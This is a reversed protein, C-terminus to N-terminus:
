PRTAVGMFAPAFLRAQVVPPDGAQRWEGLGHDQITQLVGMMDPNPHPVPEDPHEDRWQQNVAPVVNFWGESDVSEQERALLEQLPAERGGLGPHAGLKAALDEHSVGQRTAEGLVGRYGGEPEPPMAAPQPEMAQPEQREQEQRERELREQELREQELREQELREQELREQEQREREEAEAPTVPDQGPGVSQPTEEM